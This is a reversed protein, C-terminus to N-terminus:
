FLDFFDTKRRPHIFNGGHGPWWSSTVGGPATTLCASGVIIEPVEFNTPASVQQDFSLRLRQGASIDYNPVTVCQYLHAKCDYAAADDHNVSGIGGAISVSINNCASAANNTDQGYAYWYNNLATPGAQEDNSSAATATNEHFFRFGSCRLM